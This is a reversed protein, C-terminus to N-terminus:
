AETERNSDGFCPGILRLVQDAIQQPSRRREAQGASARLVEMDAYQKIMGIIMLANLFADDGPRLQELLRMFPNLVQDFVFDRLFELHEADADLLERQLLRRFDPAQHIETALTLVFDRLRQFPPHSSELTDLLRGASERFAAEVAARYLAEKNPFHNYLAPPTIGIAQALDRMSVGRFGRAAFLTVAVDLLRERTPDQLEATNM